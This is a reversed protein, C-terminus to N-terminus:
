MRVVGNAPRTARIRWSIERDDLLHVPPSDIDIWSPTELRMDPWGGKLDHLRVTLVRETGVTLHPSGFFADLHGYCLLFIPTLAALPPIACALLRANASAVGLLSQMVIRPEDAFLRIAFLNAWLRRTADDRAAHNSFIEFM